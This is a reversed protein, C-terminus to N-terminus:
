RLERDMAVTHPTRPPAQGEDSPDPSLLRSGLTIVAVALAACAIKDGPTWRQWFWVPDTKGIRVSTFRSTILWCILPILVLTVASATMAPASNPLNGTSAWWLAAAAVDLALGLGLFGRRRPTRWWAWWPHNGELTQRVESSRAQVWDRDAGEIRASVKKRTIEVHMMRTTNRDITLDSLEIATDGPVSGTIGPDNLLEALTGGTTTVCPNHDTRRDRPIPYRTTLEIEDPAFHRTVRRILEDAIKRTVRCPRLQPEESFPLITM